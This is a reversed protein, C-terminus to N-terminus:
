QLFFQMNIKWLYVLPLVHSKQSMSYIYYHTYNTFLQKEFCKLLDMQEQFVQNRGVSDISNVEAQEKSYIKCKKLVSSSLCETDDLREGNTDETNRQIKQLYWM